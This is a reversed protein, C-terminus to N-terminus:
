TQALRRARRSPLSATNSPTSPAPPAGLAPYAAAFGNDLPAVAMAVFIASAARRALSSRPTLGGYYIIALAALGAYFAACPAPLLVDLLLETSNWAVLALAGLWLARIGTGSSDPHVIMHIAILLDGLLAVLPLSHFGGFLGMFIVMACTCCMALEVLGRAELPSLPQGRVRDLIYSVAVIAGPTIVLARVIRWVQDPQGWALEFLRPAGPILGLAQGFVGHEGSPQDTM